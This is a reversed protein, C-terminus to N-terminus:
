GNEPESQEPVTSESTNEANVSGEPAASGSTNEANVAEEPETSGSTNETNTNEENDPKEDTENDSKETETIPQEKYFGKAASKVNIVGENLADDGKLELIIENALKMKIDIQSLGGLDLRIKNEYIARLLNLNEVNIETLNLGNIQAENLIQKAAEYSKNKNENETESKGGADTEIEEQKEVLKEGAKPNKLEIGKILIAKGSKKAGTELIKDNEDVLIYKEGRAVAFKASTEEIVLILSSPIKRKLRVSGIYPLAKTLNESVKKSSTRWLNDDISVGSKAIVKEVSYRSEGEVKIEEIHFGITLSLVIFVVVAVLTTVALASFVRLKRKRKTEASFERRLENKSKPPVSNTKGYEPKKQKPKATKKKNQPERRNDITDSRESRQSKGTNQPRETNRQRSTNYSREVSYSRDSSYQREANYPREFNYSREANKPRENARNRSSSIFHWDDGETHNSSSNNSKQSYENSFTTKRREDFSKDENDWYFNSSKNNSDEKM